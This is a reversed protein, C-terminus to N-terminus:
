IGCPDALVHIVRVNAMMQVHIAIVAFERAIKGDLAVYKIEKAANHIEAVNKEMSAAFLVEKMKILIPNILVAFLSTQRVVLVILQM